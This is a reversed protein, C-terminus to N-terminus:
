RFLSRLIRTVLGAPQRQPTARKHKQKKRTRSTRAGSAHTDRAHQKLAAATGFERKCTSCRHPKPASKPAATSGSKQKASKKKASKSGSENRKGGADAKISKPAHPLIEEIAKILHEGARKIEEATPGSGPKPHDLQNRVGIAFMIDAIKSFHREFHRVRDSVAADRGASDKLNPVMVALVYELLRKAEHVRRIPDSQQKVAQLSNVGPPLLISRRRHNGSYAAYTLVRLHRNATTQSQSDPPPRVSPGGGRSAPEPRHGPPYRSRSRHEFDRFQKQAEPRGGGRRSAPGGPPSM